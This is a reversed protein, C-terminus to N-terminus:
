VGEGAATGAGTISARCVTATLSAAFLRLTAHWKDGDLAGQVPNDM